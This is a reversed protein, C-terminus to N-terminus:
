RLLRIASRSSIAWWARLLNLDQGGQERSEGHTRTIKAYERGEERQCATNTFRNRPRFRTVYDLVRTSSPIVLRPTSLPMLTRQNLRSDNEREAPGGRVYAPSASRSLQTRARVRQAHDQFDPQATPHRQPISSPSWGPPVNYIYSAIASFAPPKMMTMNSVSPKSSTLSPDISPQSSSSSILRAVLM